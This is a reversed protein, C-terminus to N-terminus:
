ASVAPVDPLGADMMERRLTVLQRRLSGDLVRDGYRAVFGGLIAANVKFHPEVQRGLVRSLERTIERELVPDGGRALTIHAHVRGAHQDVLAQYEERIERLLRERRKAVVVLLFRLFREPVKGELARRVVAQKAEVDLQPSTLFQQVRPEALLSSLGAFTAAYEEEERHRVGLEHLAAAYNRAITRDRM